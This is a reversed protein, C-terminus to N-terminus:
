SEKKTLRSIKFLTRRLIRQVRNWAARFFISRMEQQRLAGLLSEMHQQYVHYDNADLAKRFAVRSEATVRSRMDYIRRRLKSVDFESPAVRKKPVPIGNSIQRQLRYSLGERRQRFGGSQSEAAQKATLPSLEIRGDSYANALLASLELNRSILLNTGSEDAEFQPLWADGITLDATEGVVDDCYECATPMLTGANYKGGVVKACDQQIIPLEKSEGKAKFVYSRAPIGPGKTRHQIETVKTPPLNEPWALSLSWHVSKLHGCVLSVIYAIKKARPDEVHQLRRMAKCMCPVGVFLFKGDVDNLQALASSLEVVHYRSQSGARIEDESTSLKYAFFPSEPGDRPIAKVHLVGDIKGHRLLEAGIWTGFGGSTGLERFDSEAVHGAFIKQHWGIQSDFACHKRFLPEALANENLEPSLWPCVKALKQDTEQALQRPIEPQYMGHKTLQMPFGGVASCAGCGICYGHDVVDRITAVQSPETDKM